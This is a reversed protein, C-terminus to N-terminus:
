MSQGLSSGGDVGAGAGPKTPPALCRAQRRRRKTPPTLLSTTSALDAVPLSQLSPAEVTTPKAFSGVVLESASSLDLHAYSPESNAEPSKNPAADGREEAAQLSTGQMSSSAGEVKDSMTTHARHEGAPLIAESLVRWHLGVSVTLAFATVVTMVNARFRWRKLSRQHALGADYAM